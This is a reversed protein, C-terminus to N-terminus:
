RAAMSALATSSSAGAGGLRSPTCGHVGGALFVRSGGGADDGEDVGCGHIHQMDSQTGFVDPVCLVRQWADSTAGLAVSDDNPCWSLGGGWLTDGCGGCADQMCSSTGVRRPMGGSADSAPGIAGVGDSVALVEGLRLERRPVEGCSGCTDGMDFSMDTGESVDGIPNPCMWTGGIVLSVDPLWAGHAEAM